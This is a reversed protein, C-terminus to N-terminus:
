NWPVEKFHKEYESRLLAENLNENALQASAVCLGAVVAGVKLCEAVPLGRSDGWLVGAFFSDGAGNSDVLRYGDIIPQEHWGGAADLATAGAKGHTCIVLKKGARHQAVMFSRWDALADSSLLLCDAAAIFDGHYPNHGDYDHIDVWVPKGSARAAPILQRVYNIINLVVYDARALEPALAAADVALEHSGYATYISIRGGQVDMLNTHTETGAPDDLWLMRLGSGALERRIRAGAEDSGIRTHLVTDLGLRSLNLAKGAGTSGVLQLSGASFVTQPRAEPFRELRIVTDWSVGGAVFVRKM